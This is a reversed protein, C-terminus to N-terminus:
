FNGVRPPTENKVIENLNRNKKSLHESHETKFNKSFKLNQFKTMKIKRKKGERRGVCM